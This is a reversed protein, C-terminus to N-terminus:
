ARAQSPPPPMLIDLGTSERAKFELALRAIQRVEDIMQPTVMRGKFHDLKGSLLFRVAQDDAPGWEEEVSLRFGCEVDLGRTIENFDISVYAQRGSSDKVVDMRDQKSM